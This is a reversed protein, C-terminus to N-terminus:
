AADAAGLREAWQARLEEWGHAMADQGVIREADEGALIADLVGFCVQWGAAYMAADQPRALRMLVILRGPEM